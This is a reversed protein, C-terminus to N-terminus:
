YTEAWWLYFLGVLESPSHQTVRVTSILMAKDKQALRLQGAALALGFELAAEGYSGGTSLFVKELFERMMESLEPSGSYDLEHPFAARLLSAQLVGDNFRLFNEVDLVVTEHLSSALRGAPISFERASQLAATMALYSVAAYDCAARQESKPNWYVFGETLELQKNASSPLIGFSAKELADAAMQLSARVLDEAWPSGTLVDIVEARQMLADARQWAAGRGPEAGTPLVEWCSLLYPRSKMGSQILFQSLRTWAEMTSPLALGAIFHRSAKPVLERLDRAMVRLSHGNGIVPACVLVGGCREPTLKNITGSDLIIAARGTLKEMEHACLEAMEKAGDGAVPLVHTVSIPTRLRIEEAVWERFSKSASVEKESFSVIDIAHTGNARSKNLRCAKADSFNKLVADLATPGHQLALTLTRPKKGRAAFYEGALEIIAEGHRPGIAAVTSFHRDRAYLVTGKRGQDSMDLVTVLADEPIGEEVLKKVMSGTTSASVLIVEDPGVVRYLGHVGDHSHFSNINWPTAVGGSASAVNEIARAIPYIGMTDIHITQAERLRAWACACISLAVFYADIEEKLLESALLLHKTERKSPHRFVHGPPAEQYASTNDVLQALGIPLLKDLELQFDSRSASDRFIKAFKGDSFRWISLEKLYDMSNPRGRQVLGSARAENSNWASVVADAQEGFSLLVVADPLPERTKLADQLEDDVLILDVAARGFFILLVDITEGSVTCVTRCRFSLSRKM